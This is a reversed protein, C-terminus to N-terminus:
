NFNFNGSSGFATTISGYPNIPITATSCGARTYTYTATASAPCANSGAYNASVTVVYSAVDANNNSALFQVAPTASNPISILSGTTFAPTVSVSYVVGCAGLTADTVTFTISVTAGATVAQFQGNINTLDIVIGTTAPTACTIYVQMDGWGTAGSMGRFGVFEYGAPINYTIV